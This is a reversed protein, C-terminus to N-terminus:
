SININGAGTFAGSVTLGGQSKCGTITTPRSNTDMQTPMECQSFSVWSASDIEIRNSFISAHFTVFALDNGLQDGVILSNAFDGSLDIQDFHYEGGNSGDTLCTICNLGVPASLRWQVTGDNFVVGYNKNTPASGATTGGQQCSLVCNHGGVNNKVMDGVNYNHSNIRNPWGQNVNNTSDGSDAKIRRFFNGNINVRLLDSYANSIVIDDFLHDYGYVDICQTGGDVRLKRFTNEGGDVYLTPNSAGFSGTDQWGGKGRLSMDSVTINFANETVVLVSIDNYVSGGANQGATIVVANMGAGLLSVYGDIILPSTIYYAGRPFYVLGGNDADIAAQIAATDNTTGDGTAGFDMVSVGRELIRDQVNRITAGTSFSVDLATPREITVPGGVSNQKLFRSTGGTTSLDVGFGGRAPSLTGAWGLTIENGNVAGTVNVDSIVTLPATNGGFGGGGTDGGGTDGGGTDGGGTDGTGGDPVSPPVFVPLAPLPAILPALQLSLFKTATQESATAQKQAVAKTDTGTSVVLSGSEVFSMEFTTYGGRERSESMSYRECMAQMGGPVFVPHVLQGIDNEELVEIMRKRQNTYEYRPNSPRYILYGTFTFRRAQRGMDEAYPDNRKPFEHVVTRRGSSRSGTEVHFVVGRFSAMQALLITRWPNVINKIEM